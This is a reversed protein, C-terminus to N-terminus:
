GIETYITLKLGSDDNPQFSAYEFSLRGRRPHRLM